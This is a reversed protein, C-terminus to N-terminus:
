NFSNNNSLLSSNTPIHLSLSKGCVPLLFFNASFIIVNYSYCIFYIFGWKVLKNKIDTNWQGVIFINYMIPLIKVVFIFILILSRIIDIVINYLNIIKKYINKNQTHKLVFMFPYLCIMITLFICFFRIYESPISIIDDDNIINEIEEIIFDINM